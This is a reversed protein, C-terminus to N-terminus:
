PLGQSSRYISRLDGVKLTRGAIWVSYERPIGKAVSDFEPDKLKALAYAKLFLYFNHFREIMHPTKDNLIADCDRLAARYDENKLFLRARSMRCLCNEDKGNEIADSLLALADNVQGKQRLLGARLTTIGVQNEPVVRAYEALTEEAEAYKKDRALRLVKDELPHLTM